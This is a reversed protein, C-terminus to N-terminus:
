LRICLNTKCIGGDDVVELKYSNKFLLDLRQNVSELDECNEMHGGPMGLAFCICSFHLEGEGARFCFHVDLPLNGLSSLKVYHIAFPIFLLPPVLKRSVDGEKMVSFSLNAHRTKALELFHEIFSIESILLVKERKGDYLQYRLLRSLEMLVMSAQAPNDFTQKGAEDLMNFLFEPNIQDKLLELETKLNVKELENKRKYFGIWHRLLITISTGAILLGYLFFNSVIEVALIRNKYFFSYYGPEQRYYLNLWYDSGFSVVIMVLILLSVTIIYLVYRNKLLLGPLLVYMHLYIGGLYSFLLILSVCWIVDDVEDLFGACILYPMNFAVFTFFLILLVHRGIRYKPAILFKILFSNYTVESEPM